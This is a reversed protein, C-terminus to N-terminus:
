SSFCDLLRRKAGLGNIISDVIWSIDGANKLFDDWLEPPRQLLTDAAIIGSWDLKKPDAGVVGSQHMVKLFEEAVLGYGIATPHICDLSFLGGSTRQNQKDIGLMLTSPVPDLDLLPHGAPLYDRLVQEPAGLQQKRKVALNGLLEGIDVLHWNDGAEAVLTKITDNFEDVRRDVERVRDRELFRVQLWGPQAYFPYYRDYYRGDFKGAGQTLPPITVYPVTSVFVNTKRAPDRDVISKVEDVLTRYDREFVSPSTLNFERREEPDDSPFYDPMPKIDLDGVTGLCDNAGLALILNEVGERDYIERLVDVQTLQLQKRARNNGPNLVKYAARYMPASPLALRDNARDGEVKRIIKLCYDPDVTFADAVRFGFVALNHHIGRFSSSGDIRGPGREYYGETTDIYKGVARVWRLKAGLSNGEDIAGESSKLFHELNIPLGQGSGDEGRHNPICFEQNIELGLSRAITAPYSWETAFIAGSQFGHTISDGIAVLKAM